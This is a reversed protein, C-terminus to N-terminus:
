FGSADIIEVIDRQSVQSIDSDEYDSIVAAKLEKFKDPEVEFRSMVDKIMQDLKGGDISGEASEIKGEEVDKELLMRM